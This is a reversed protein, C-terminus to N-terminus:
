AAGKASFRAIERVLARSDSIQRELSEGARRSPDFRSQEADALVGAVRKALNPDMGREVCHAELAALTFGGVPEALRAQLAARLGGIISAYAKASDGQRAAQEAEHLKTDATRLAQEAPDQKRHAKLRRRVRGGLLVLSCSIPGALVAWVFWPRSVLRSHSRELTSTSRAPGFSAPSPVPSPSADPAPATTGSSPAAAPAGTVELQLAQSRAEHDAKNQPDFVKVTFPALERKGPTRPLLLWRFSREGGVQDLDTTVKDDIEPALVDVGELVPDPLKLAKLNGQGKALVRLTVADGVKAKSPELSAELSLSGVHVPGHGGLAPLARAQVPVAVGNRRVTQAPGTLLDFISSGASIEIAPAGIELKGERLPFAAFRRLVFVNFARGNVEQRVPALQRQVPLLDQVWFGEATPERTISPNQSLGGRVYLYVTVTVQEGVYAESKDVVTRLFLDEDYRAGSLPGEAPASGPAAGDPPANPDPPAGPPLAGPPQVLASGRAEITLKQSAYKRSGITVIAPQIVYTGPETARVTFDHVIQSQVQARQGGSGFGFSFSIPRSVSKGLVELKGFDPLAIDDVDEGSLDVRIEIIFPDGVDVQTASSVMTVRVKQALATNGFGLGLVFGLALLAARLM